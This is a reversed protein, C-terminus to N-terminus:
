MLTVSIWSQTHLPEVGEPKFRSKKSRKDTEKEIGIVKAIDFLDSFAILTNYFYLVMFLAPNQSRIGRSRHDGQVEQYTHVMKISQQRRMLANKLDSEFCM